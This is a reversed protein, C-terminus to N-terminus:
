LTLDGELLREIFADAAPGEFPGALVRVGLQGWPATFPLSYRGARLVAYETGAARFREVSPPEWSKVYFVEDGLTIESIIYGLNDEEQRM